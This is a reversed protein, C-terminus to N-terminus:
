HSIDVIPEESKKESDAVFSAPDSTKKDSITPTIGACTESHAQCETIHLSELQRACWWRM